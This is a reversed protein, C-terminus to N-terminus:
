ELARAVRFGNASFRIGTTTKDRASARLGGPGDLWSGGRLVRLNCSGGEIWASGDQPADAYDRHWCDEVWERANGLMDYLGFGNPGYGGVESTHVQGDDCPETLDFWGAYRSKLSADAGNANRCQGTESEDWYRPTATGGRAAYEWESESLLRYKRNTKGSLWDVYAQADMWSVCVMPENEGQVFGPDTPGVGERTEVGDYRWCASGGSRNTEELFRTFEGRRVEFMGIAIPTPLTVWHRHAEDDAGEGSPSGMEYRGAPVVVMRPCNPCDRFEGEYQLDRAAPKNVQKRGAAKGADSDQAPAFAVDLRESDPAAQSSAGPDPVEGLGGSGSAGAAVKRRLEDLQIAALRVYRGGPFRTRYDQLAAIRSVPDAIANVTKWYEVDAATESTAVQPDKSPVASTPRTLYAGKASLSGYWFPEQRGTSELVDDRVERLMQVVELGPQELHRLLALAFPSNRGKGDMAVTGEKASYVLLTDGGSPEARALGRGISRTSGKERALSKLFPNERCADLVVLRFESAGQVASMVLDLPVAEFEVEGDTELRADVPVLFNHKNVEIGHGAYFVVAIKSTSVQRRFARLGQRLEAYDANDIRTVAFGIRDLAAAIDAADNLPNELRPVHDYVANGIVLAVRPSALVPGAIMALLIVATCAGLFKEQTQKMATDGISAVARMTPALRAGAVGGGAPAIDVQIEVM